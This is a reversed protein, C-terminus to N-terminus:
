KKKFFKGHPIFKIEKLYDLYAETPFLKIWAKCIPNNYEVIVKANDIQYYSLCSNFQDIVKSFELKMSEYADPDKTSLSAGKCYAQLNAKAILIMDSGSNNLKSSEWFFLDKLYCKGVFSKDANIYVDIGKISDKNIDTSRLAKIISELHKSRYVMENSVSQNNDLSLQSRLAGLYLKRDSIEKNTM